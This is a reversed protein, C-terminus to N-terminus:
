FINKDDEIQYRLAEIEKVLAKNQDELILIAENLEENRIIKEELEQSLRM